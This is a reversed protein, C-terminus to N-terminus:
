LELANESNTVDTCKCLVQTMMLIDYFKLFHIFLVHQTYYVNYLYWDIYINLSLM